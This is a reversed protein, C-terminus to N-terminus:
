RHPFMKEALLPMQLKQQNNANSCSKHVQKDCGFMTFIWKAQCLEWLCDPPCLKLHFASSVDEDIVALRFINKWGKFNTYVLQLWSRPAWLRIRASKVPAKPIPTWKSRAAQLVPVRCLCRVAPLCVRRFPLAALLRCVVSSCFVFSKGFGSHASCM